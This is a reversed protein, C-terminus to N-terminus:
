LFDFDHEGMEFIDIGSKLMDFLEAQEQDDAIHDGHTKADVLTVLHDALGLVANM